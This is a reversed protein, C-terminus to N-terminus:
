QKEVEIPSGYNVKLILPSEIELYNEKIVIEEKIEACIGSKDCDDKLDTQYIPNSTTTFSKECICSCEGWALNSCSLPMNSTGKSSSFSVLVWGKPNFLEIEQSKINVQEIFYNLSEKALDLERAKQNNYYLSALFFALFGIVIVAIVIKLTEEALIMAKKQM